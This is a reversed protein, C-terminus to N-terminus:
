LRFINLSTPVLKTQVQLNHKRMFEESCVIAAAGGDATPASMWFTIPDCLMLKTKIDERSLEKSITAKPNNVSHKHNKYAIEVFDDLNTQPHKKIYERAAYAYLKVVDSTMKNMRPQILEPDAGIEVMHDMHRDVPSTRDTYRQSLGREMKEFGSFILVLHYEIKMQVYLQYCCGDKKM